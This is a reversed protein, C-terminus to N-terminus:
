DAGKESKKKIVGGVVLVACVALAFSLIIIWSMAVRDRSAVTSVPTGIVAYTSFHDTDFVLYYQGDIEEVSSDLIIIEGQENVYAVNLNSYKSMDGTMPIYIRLNGNIDNNDILETLSNENNGVTRTVTKYLAIELAKVVSMGQNSLKDRATSSLQTTDSILSVDIQDVLEDLLEKTIVNELGKILTINNDGINFSLKGSSATFLNSLAAVVNTSLKQKGNESLLDYYVKIKWVEDSKINTSTILQTIYDIVDDEKVASICVSTSGKLHLYIKGDEVEYNIYQEFKEGDYTFLHLCYGKLDSPVNLLIVTDIDWAIGKDDTIKMEYMYKLEEKDMYFGSESLLRNFAATNFGETITKVQLNVNDDIKFNSVVEESNDKIEAAYSNSKIVFKSEEYVVVYNETEVGEPVVTYTGIETPINKIVPPQKLLLSSEVNVFGEYIFTFLPTDGQYIILDRARIILTAKEVEILVKGQCPNYDSSDPTFTFNYEKKGATLVQGLDLSITGPVNSVCTLEPLPDGYKLKVSEDALKVSEVTSNGKEATLEVTGYVAKTEGEPIFKYTYNHKGARIVGDGVWGFQGNVSNGSGDYATGTLTPLTKGATYKANYDYEPYVRLGYYNKDLVEPIEIVTSLESCYVEFQTDGKTLANGHMYRISYDVVFVVDYEYYMSGVLNFGTEIVDGDYYQEKFVSLPVFKLDIVFGDLFMFFEDRLEELEEISDTQEASDLFESIRNEYITKAQQNTIHSSKTGLVEDVIRNYEESGVFGNTIRLVAKMNEIAEYNETDCSFVATIEYTGVETYTNGPTYTVTVGEPLTGTIVISHEKGDYEFRADSFSVGSMDYRAKQVTLRGPAFEIDYNDSSLGFPTVSYEGAKRIEEYSCNFSVSGSLSDANDGQAFGSYTVSFSPQEGYHITVDAATVVLKAKNIKWEISIDETTGDSWSYNTKDKISLSATYSGCNTQSECVVDLQGEYKETVNHSKGDYTFEILSVVPKELTAKEVTLKGEVYEIDYNDSTCGM